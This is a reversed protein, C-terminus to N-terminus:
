LLRELRICIVTMRRSRCPAGKTMRTYFAQRRAEDLDLVQQSIAHDGGQSWGPDIDAQAAEPRQSIAWRGAEAWLAYLRHERRCLTVGCGEPRLQAADARGDRRPPDVM